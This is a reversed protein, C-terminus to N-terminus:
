SDAEKRFFDEGIAHKSLGKHVLKSVIDYIVAFLPVGIIMGIFGFWGGFVIISFLIWFSSLGVSDGLIKPGIINGDLQQLVIIFIVFWLCKSPDEILILLATPIAGIFPGFFPIINTIGIIVAVLLANPMKTIACFIYCLLGIIASDLIKGTLFGSFMHDAFKFEGDIIDGWKRGSISYLIKKAQVAFTRRGALFYVTVFLGVFIDKLTNFVSIVGSGVGSIINAMDPLLKNTVWNDFAENVSEYVTTFYGLLTPNDKFKGEIFAIAQEVNGPLTDSLSVISSYTQPIIMMLLLYIILLACIMTIAVSLVMDLKKHKPMLDLLWKEVKNCLPSLLYALAGGIIFPMLLSVVAKVGKAFVKFKYLFLFLIIALALSGFGVFMAKIWPNKIKGKGEDM